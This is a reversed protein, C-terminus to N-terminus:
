IETWVERIGELIQVTTISLYFSQCVFKPIKKTLFQSLSHTILPLSHLKSNEMAM